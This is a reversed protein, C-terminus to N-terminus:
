EQWSSGLCTPSWIGSERAWISQPRYQRRRRTALHLVTTAALATFVIPYVWKGMGSGVVQEGLSDIQNLVGNMASALSGQEVPLFGVILDGAVPALSDFSALEGLGLALTDLAPLALPIALDSVAPLQAVAAKASLAAPVTAISAVNSDLGLNIGSLDVSSKVSNSDLSSSAVRADASIVQETIGDPSTSNLSNGSLNVTGPSSTSGSSDKHDSQSKGHVAKNGPTAASITDGLNSITNEGNNSNNGSSSDSNSNGSDSSSDSSSAHSKGNNGHDASGNDENNNSTSASVVATSPSGSFDNDLNLKELKDAVQDKKSNESNSNANKGVEAKVSDSGQDNASELSTNINTSTAVENKESQDDSTMKASAGHDSDTHNEAQSQNQHENAESASSSMDDSMKQAHEAASDSTDRVETEVKPTEMEATMAASGAHDADLLPQTNSPVVRNELSELFLIIRKSKRM